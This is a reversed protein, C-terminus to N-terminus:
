YIKTLYTPPEDFPKKTGAALDYIREHAIRAAAALEEYPRNCVDFFGINYNEGDFRGMASQDYMTFWHVGVCYPNAAADELYYRYAAGREKQTAVRGIGSAPLGVDLAGFHWEGIMVPLNLMTSIKKSADFPVKETYSNASFVDFNRMGRLTWEPPVGAYRIGLNLHNPDVKRCHDSLMTFYREVMLESFDVLDKRATETLRTKWEGRAIRNFDVDLEWSKALTSSDAYREGLFKALEKRSECEPTNFLMGVAPPEKSFGWTPENMLFYGIMSPDDKLPDLQGAYDAADLEFDSHYVDPFDRYVMRSRKWGSGMPIVYPFRAKRAIEWQSWNGVTNFGIAKMESLTISAWKDYWSDAGFVRIFNASLYDASEASFAKQYEGPPEPKWRLAAELGGCNAGISARVCDLGASWFLFGDPDVLYWRKGDHHTRFFGPAHSPKSPNAAWGGWASFGDPWQAASSRKLQDTLRQSLEDVSKTKAPWQHITSQGMEDLLVGKPLAPKDLRPPEENMAFFSTQIFRVPDDTKIAVTLRMRDVQELDVRDGSCLPKLWAGERELRWRNQNVSELPLRIRAGAQNLGKYRLVFSPGDEGERLRLEFVTLYLGSVLFDAMLWSANKLAGKEFRYEFGQGKTEAEYWTGGEILSEGEVQKLGGILGTPKLELGANASALKPAMLLGAGTLAQVEIFRRRNM